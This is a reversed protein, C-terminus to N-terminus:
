RGTQRKQGRSRNAQNETARVKDRGYPRAKQSVWASSGGVSPSEDEETEPEGSDEWALPYKSITELPTGPYRTDFQHRDYDSCTSWRDSCLTSDYRSVGVSDLSENMPDDAYAPQGHCSSLGAVLVVAAIQM